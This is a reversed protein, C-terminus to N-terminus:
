IVFFFCSRLQLLQKRKSFVLHHEASCKSKGRVEVFVSRSLFLSVMPLKLFFILFLSRLARISSPHEFQRM